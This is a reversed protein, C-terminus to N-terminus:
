YTKIIYIILFILLFPSFLVVIGLVLYIESYEYLSVVIVTACFVLPIIM